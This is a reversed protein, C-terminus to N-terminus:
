DPIPEDAKEDRKRDRDRWWRAKRSIDDTRYPCYRSECFAWSWDKPVRYISARCERCREPQRCPALETWLDLFEARHDRVLPLSARVAREAKSRRPEDKPLTFAAAGCKVEMGVGLRILDRVLQPLPEM